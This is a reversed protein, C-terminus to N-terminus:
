RTGSGSSGSTPGGRDEPIYACVSSFPSVCVPHPSISVQSYGTRIEQGSSGQAPYVGTGAYAPVIAVVQQSIAIAAIYAFRPVMSM